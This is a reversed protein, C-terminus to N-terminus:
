RSMLTATPMSHLLTRTTGGFFFEKLWSKSYAGMVLLDIGAESIRNEIAEGTGIGGSLESSYTVNAGHRALAAAIDVGAVAGDQQNTDEADLSLIQTEEAARIFPLADFVARTSQQTGNWAILIKRFVPEKSGTYPVFLVPRGSEYILAEVNALGGAEGDPNTQQAIVLDSARAVALAGIASDGSITEVSNWERSVGDRDARREFIEKLEASRKQHLEASQAIFDTDPFGLPTVYPLPIPEAHAGILHSSFQSALPLAYDLVRDADEKSQLVALITKYSM